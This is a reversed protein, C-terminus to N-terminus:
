TWISKRIIEKQASRGASKTMSIKAQVLRKRGKLTRSYILESRVAFYHNISLQYLEATQKNRAFFEPVGVIKGAGMEIFYRPTQLDSLAEKMAGHFLNEEQYGAQALYCLCEQDTAEITVRDFADPEIAGIKIFTEIISLAFNRIQKIEKQWIKKRWYESAAATLKKENLFFLVAAGDIGLILTGVAPTIATALLGSLTLVSAGIWYNRTRKASDSEVKPKLILTKVNIDSQKQDKRIILPMTLHSGKELASKWFVPLQKRQGSWYLMEQNYVAIEKGSQISLLNFRDVGSEVVPQTEFTVGCVYGMRKMIRRVDIQKEYELDPIVVALHWINTSKGKGNIRLGRGRLQQTQVFSVSQNALIITNIAPCDWGEGLLSSTGVLLQITQENVLRTLIALAQARNQENPYIVTYVNFYPHESSKSSVQSFFPALAKPVILFEGCIAALALEEEFFPVLSDFIPILGYDLEGNKGFLVEKKIFDTLVLGSLENGLKEYECLLIRVIAEKKEIPAQNLIKESFAPFLQLRKQAVWGQKELYDFLLMDPNKEYLYTLLDIMHQTEFVPFSVKEGQSKTIGLLQWHEDTMQYGHMQLFILSSLYIDFSQYIFGEEAKPQQIFSQELLYDVIEDSAAITEVVQAQQQIFQEYRDVIENPASILYLYDQHPALVQEKVLQPISIEEDIPGNLLQYQQWEQLNADYPPTATLSVTVLGPTEAKLRLLLEGWSKKLHHAEDLVLVAIKEKQLFNPENILRSYITQYTEVTIEKPRDILDSLEALDTKEKLFVTEITKLWQQKLVLSPVLILTKHDLQRVIEIGLYNKGSGPPAVLHISNNTKYKELRDILQKQYERWNVNKDTLITM